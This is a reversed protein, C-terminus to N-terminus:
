EDGGDPTATQGQPLDSASLRGERLVAANESLALKRYAWAFSNGPATDELPLSECNM